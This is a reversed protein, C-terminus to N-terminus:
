LITPITLLIQHHDAQTGLTQHTLHTKLTDPIGELDAEDGITAMQDEEMLHNTQDMVVRGIPDLVEVFIKGM